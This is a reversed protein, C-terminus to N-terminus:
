SNDSGYQISDPDIGLARLRERLINNEQQVAVRTALEADDSCPLDDATPLVEPFHFDEIRPNRKKAPPSNTMCILRLLYM